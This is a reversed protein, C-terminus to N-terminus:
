ILYDRIQEVISDLDIKYKKHLWELDGYLFCQEDKIAIRKTPILCKNDILVECILSGIGGIFTNEEITVINKYHVMSDLLLSENIPKVRYIDIVGADISHRELENAVKLARHVMIGTSVICCDSGKKLVTFGDSFSANKKYIIPTAGKHLRVYTPSFNKYAMEAFASASVPDSPNFITMEPLARMIAVDIVGHGAPGYHSFSLGSGLGILTIPLKMSCIDIKIQEYCRMTIFPVMSYIFIKKGSLALGAAVSITNQEAVGTNLFRNPHNKRFKVLSDADADATLFILDNNVSAIDYFADFFANRFDITTKSMM